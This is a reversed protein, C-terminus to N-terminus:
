SLPAPVACNRGQHKAQYLAADARQFLMKFAENSHRTAYGISVTITIYALNHRHVDREAQNRLNEALKAVQTDRSEPSIVVFEEGGWRGLIAGTPMLALM